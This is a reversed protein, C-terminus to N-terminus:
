LARPSRCLTLSASRSIGISGSTAPKQIRRESVRQRNWLFRGQWQGAKRQQNKGGHDGLVNTRTEGLGMQLAVCQYELISFEQAMLIGEGNGLVLLISAEGLHLSFSERVSCGCPLQIELGRLRPTKQNPDSGRAM